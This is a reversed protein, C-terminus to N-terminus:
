LGVCTVGLVIGCPLLGVVRPLHGGGRYWVGFVVCDLLSSGVVTVCLFLCVIFYLYGWSLLM